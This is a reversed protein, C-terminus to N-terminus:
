FTLKFFILFFPSLTRLEGRRERGQELGTELLPFSVNAVTGRGSELRKGSNGGALGNESPAAAAERLM